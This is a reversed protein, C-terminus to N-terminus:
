TPLELSHGGGGRTRDRCGALPSAPEVEPPRRVPASTGAPKAPELLASESSIAHERAECCDPAPARPSAYSSGTRSLAVFQSLADRRVLQVKLLDGPQRQIHHRRRHPGTGRGVLTVTLSQRNRGVLTYRKFASTACRVDGVTVYSGTHLQGFLQRYTRRLLRVSSRTSTAPSHVSTSPRHGGDINRVARNPAM